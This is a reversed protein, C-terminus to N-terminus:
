GIPTNVGQCSLTALFDKFARFKKEMGVQNDQVCQISDELVSTRNQLGSIVQTRQQVNTEMEKFTLLLKRNDNQLKRHILSLSNYNERNLYVHRWKLEDKSKPSKVKVFHYLILQRKFNTLRNHKFFKPLVDRM